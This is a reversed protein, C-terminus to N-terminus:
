LTEPSVERYDKQARDLSFNKEDLILSGKPMQNLSPIMVSPSIYMSVDVSTNTPWLPHISQPVASYEGVVPEAGPKAIEPEAAKQQNQGMFQRIAFQIAFFILVNKGISWAKDLGSQEPQADGAAAAQTQEPM